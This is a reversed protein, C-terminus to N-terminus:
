AAHAHLPVVRGALATGAEADEDVFAAVVGLVAARAAAPLGPLDPAIRRFEEQWDLVRDRSHPAM